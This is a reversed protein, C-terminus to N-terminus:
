SGTSRHRGYAEPVWVVLGAEEFEGLIRDVDEEVVDPHMGCLQCIAEIMEEATTEGDCLDWIALATENLLHAGGTDPNYALTEGRTKRIWIRPARVPRQSFLSPSV